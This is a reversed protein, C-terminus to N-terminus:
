TAEFGYRAIWDAFITTEIVLDDGGGLLAFQNGDMAVADTVGARVLTASTGNSWTDHGVAVLVGNWPITNGYNEAQEEAADRLDPDNELEWPRLGWAVLDVRRGMLNRYIRGAPTSARRLTRGNSLLGTLGGSGVQLGTPEGPGIRYATFGSGSRGFHWSHTHPSPQTEGPPQPVVSGFPTASYGLLALTVYGAETAGITALLAALYGGGLTGVLPFTITGIFAGLAAGLAAATATSTALIAVVTGFQLDWILRMQSGNTVVPANRDKAATAFWPVLHSWRRFVGIDLKEPNVICYHLGKSEGWVYGRRAFADSGVVLPWLTPDDLPRTLVPDRASM